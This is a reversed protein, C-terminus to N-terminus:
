SFSLKLGIPQKVLRFYKRERAITEFLTYNKLYQAIFALYLLVFSM